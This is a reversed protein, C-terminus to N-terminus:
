KRRRNTERSLEKTREKWYVTEESGEEKLKALLEQNIVKYKESCYIMKIENFFKHTEVVSKLIVSLKCHFCKLNLPSLSAYHDDSPSGVEVVWSRSGPEACPSLNTM